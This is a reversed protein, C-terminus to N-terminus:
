QSVLRMKLKTDIAHKQEEQMWEHTKLIKLNNKIIKKSQDKFERTKLTKNNRMHMRLKNTDITYLSRLKTDQMCQKNSKLQM